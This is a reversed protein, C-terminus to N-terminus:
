PSTVHARIIWFWPASTSISLSGPCPVVKRSRKGRCGTGTSPRPPCTAPVCSPPRTVRSSSSCIRTVRWSTRTPNSSSAGTSGTWFSSAAKSCIMGWAKSGSWPRFKCRGPWSAPTPPRAAQATAFAMIKNVDLEITDAPSLDHALLIARHTIAKLGNGGGVLKDLVREAVLRVDQMRQRLYEDSIAAFIEQVDGVARELAWEANVKATSIHDLARKRFKRDRLMMLHSEIIASHEKLDEPVLSLIRELEQLAAEFARTLREMELPVDADDVTQRVTGSFHSKNLYYARGIAVGASVPIGFLTRSAM